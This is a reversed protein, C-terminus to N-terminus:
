RHMVGNWLENLSICWADDEVSSLEASGYWCRDFTYKLASFAPLWPFGIKKLDEYLELNTHTEDLYLYRQEHLLLLVAIFDYRVAQRINGAQRATSASRRLSEPTTKEDIKEGLIEKVTPNRQFIKNIRVIVGIILGLMLLLGATMFMTALWDGTSTSIKIGSFIHRFFRLLADEFAAKMKDLFNTAPNKLLLYERGQLVQHVTKNFRARSPLLMMMPTFTLKLTVLKFKKLPIQYLINLTRSGKQM